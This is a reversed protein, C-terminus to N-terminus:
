AFVEDGRVGVERMDEKMVDLYRRQDKRKIKDPLQMEPVNIGVISSM